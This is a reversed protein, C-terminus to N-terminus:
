RMMFLLMFLHINCILVSFTSNGQQRKCCESLKEREKTQDRFKEFYQSVKLTVVSCVVCCIGFFPSIYFVTVIAAIDGIINQTTYFLNSIVRDYTRKINEISDIQMRSTYKNRWKYGAKDYLSLVYTLQRGLIVLNEDVVKPEFYTNDLGKVWTIVCLAVVNYIVFEHSGMIIERTFYSILTVSVLNFLFQCLNNKLDWLSHIGVLYLGLFGRFTEQKGPLLGDRLNLYDRM